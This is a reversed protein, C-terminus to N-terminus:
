PRVIDFRHVPRCARAIQTTSQKGQILERRPQETRIKVKGVEVAPWSPLIEFLAPARQKLRVAQWKNRLPRKRGSKANSEGPFRSLSVSYRIWAFQRFIKAAVAPSTQTHRSSHVKNRPSSFDRNAEKSM